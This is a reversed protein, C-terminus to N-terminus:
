TSEVEDDVTEFDLKVLEGLGELVKANEEWQKYAQRPPTYEEPFTLGKYASKRSHHLQFLGPTVADTDDFMSWWRGKNPMKAAPGLRIADHVWMSELGKTRHIGKTWRSKGGELFDPNWHTWGDRPFSEYGNVIPLNSIREGGYYVQPVKISAMSEEVSELRDLIANRSSDQTVMLYEDIDIYAQWEDAFGYRIMCEAMYQVQESYQRNLWFGPEYPLYIPAHQYTDHTGLLENLRETWPQFEPTQSFWHVIKIGQHLHFVRWELVDTMKMTSDFRLPATCISVPTSREPTEWEGTIEHVLLSYEIGEENTIANHQLEIPVEEDEFLTIWVKLQIPLDRIMKFMEYRELHTSNTTLDEGIATPLECEVLLYEDRAQNIMKGPIVEGNIVCDFSMRTWNSSLSNQIHGRQYSDEADVFWLSTIVYKDSGFTKDPHISTTFHSLTGEYPFTHNYSTKVGTPSARTILTPSHTWYGLSDYIPLGSDTHDVISGQELNIPRGDKTLQTKLSNVFSYPSSGSYDNFSWHSLDPHREVLTVGIIIFVVIGLIHRLMRAKKNWM